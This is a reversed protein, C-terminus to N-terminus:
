SKSTHYCFSELSVVQEAAFTVLLGGMGRALQDGGVSTLRSSSNLWSAISQGQRLRGALVIASRRLVQIHSQAGASVTRFSTLRATSRDITRREEVPSHSEVIGYVNAIDMFLWRLLCVKFYTKFQLNAVCYVGWKRSESM